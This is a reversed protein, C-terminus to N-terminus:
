RGGGMDRLRADTMRRRWLRRAEIAVGDADRTVTVGPVAEARARAEVEDLVARVRTAAREAGLSELRARM